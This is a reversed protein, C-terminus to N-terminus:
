DLVERVRKELGERLERRFQEPDGVFMTHVYLANATPSVDLVLTGPTLSILQSLLLVQNRERLEVPVRIVRPQSRRVPSLVERATRWGSVLLERLFYILLGLAKPLRRFYDRGGTELPSLALAAYGIAFGALFNLLSANGTLASWSIALLINLLFLKM